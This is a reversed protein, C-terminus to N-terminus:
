CGIHFTWFTIDELDEAVNENFKNFFTQRKLVAVRCIKTPAEVYCLFKVRVGQLSKFQGHDIYFFNFYKRHDIQVNGTM